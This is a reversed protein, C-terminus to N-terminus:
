SEHGTSRCPQATPSHLECEPDLLPTTTAGVRYSANALVACRCGRAAARPSGPLADMDDVAPTRPDPTSPDM